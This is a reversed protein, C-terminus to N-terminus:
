LVKKLLFVAGVFVAAAVLLGGGTLQFTGIDLLVKNLGIGPQGPAGQIATDVRPLGTTPDYTSDKLQDTKQAGLQTGVWNPVIETAIRGLGAELNALVNGFFGDTAQRTDSVMTSGAM